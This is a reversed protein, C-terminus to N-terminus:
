KAWDIEPKADEGWGLETTTGGRSQKVWTTDGTGYFPVVVGRVFWTESGDSYTARTAKLTRGGVALDEIALAKLERLITDDSSEKLPIGKADADKGVWTATESLQGAVVTKTASFTGAAVTVSEDTATPATAPAAADPGIKIPKGKEGKRAAVAEVVKGTAKEVTLGEIFGLFASEGGGTATGSEEVRLRAGEDGVIAVRLTSSKGASTNKIEVWQGAKLGAGDKPWPVVLTGQLYERMDVDTKEPKATGNTPKSDDPKKDDSSCGAALFALALAATWTFRV